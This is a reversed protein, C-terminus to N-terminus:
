KKTVHLTEAVKGNQLLSVLYQGSPIGSTQIVISCDGKGCKINVPLSNGSVSTVCITENGVCPTSFAITTQSDFPNPSISKIRSAIQKSIDASAYAVAGDSKATVRLKYAGKKVDDFAVSKTTAILNEDPDYWEYDVPEQINTATMMRTLDNVNGVVTVSTDEGIITGADGVDIGPDIGPRTTDLRINMAAGGMNQNNSNQSVINFNYTGRVVIADSAIMKCTFMVSDTKGPNLSLGDIKSDYGLLRVENPKASLVKINRGKSGNATWSQALSPSLTVYLEMKEFLPQKRELSDASLVLNVNLVSDSSNQITLPMIESGGGNAIIIRNKDALYRSNSIERLTQPINPTAAYLSDMNDRIRALIRVNGMCSARMGKYATPIVWPTCLVVSSDVAINQAIRVSDIFGGSYNNHWCNATLSPKSWYLELTKSSIKGNFNRIGLNGIRTYIYATDCKADIPESFQNELGDQHSRVWIDPSNWCNIDATTRMNGSDLLNDRVYLLSSDVDHDFSMEQGVWAPTSCYMPHEDAHAYQKVDKTDRECAYGFAEKLSIIGDKNEDADITDGRYDIGNIANTIHNVFFDYDFNMSYDTGGHSLEEPGCATMITRGPAKLTNLFAGSYCNGLIVTQYKSKISDLLSKLESAYLRHNEFKNYESDNGQWMCLFPKGQKDISGHCSVFVILNNIGCNGTESDYYDQKIQKFLNLVNNRTISKINNSCYDDEGIATPIKTDHWGDTVYRGAGGGFYIYTSNPIANCKQTIVDYFYKCDNWHTSYSSEDNYGGGIILVVDGSFYTSTLWDIDHYVKKIKIPNIHQSESHKVRHTEILDLKIGGPYRNGKFKVIPIKDETPEPIEQPIYFFSCKHDWNTMPQEDVFFLWKKQPCKLWTENPISDLICSENGDDYVENVSTVYYDFPENGLQQKVLNLAEDKSISVASANALAAIIAALILAIRKM